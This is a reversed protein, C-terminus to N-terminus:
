SFGWKRCHARWAVSTIMVLSSMGKQLLTNKHWYRTGVLDFGGFRLHESSAM